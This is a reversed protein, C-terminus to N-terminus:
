PCCSHVFFMIEHLVEPLFMFNYDSDHLKDKHTLIHRGLPWVERRHIVSHINEDKDTNLYFAPVQQANPDETDNLDEHEVIEAVRKLNLFVILHLNIRVYLIDKNRKM